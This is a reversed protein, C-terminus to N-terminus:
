ASAARRRLGPPAATAGRAVEGLATLTAVVVIGALGIGAYSPWLKSGVQIATEPVAVTATGTLAAAITFGLVVFGLGSTVAAQALDVVGSHCVPRIMYILMAIAALGAVLGLNTWGSSSAKIGVVGASSVDVSYWGLSLDALLLVAAGAAVAAAADRITRRDM